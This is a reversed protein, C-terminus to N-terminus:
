EASLNKEHGKGKISQNELTVLCGGAFKRFFEVVYVVVGTYGM